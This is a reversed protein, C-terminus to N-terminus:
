ITDLSNWEIKFVVTSIRIAQHEVVGLTGADSRLLKRGPCIKKKSDGTCCQVWFPRSKVARCRTFAHVESFCALRLIVSGELQESWHNNVEVAWVSACHSFCITQRPEVPNLWRAGMRGFAPTVPTLVWNKAAESTGVWTLVKIKVYDKRPCFEANQMLSFM